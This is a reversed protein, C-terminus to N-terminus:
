HSVNDNDHYAIIACVSEEKVCVPVFPSYCVFFDLIQRNIYNNTCSKLELFQNNINTLILPSSLKVLALFEVM